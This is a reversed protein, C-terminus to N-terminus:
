GKLVELWNKGDVLHKEELRLIKFRDKYEALGLDGFFKDEDKTTQKKYDFYFIELNHNEKLLCKFMGNLLNDDKNFGFGLVAVKSCEALSKYADAYLKVVDFYMIPKMAVQPYLFPVLNKSSENKLELDSLECVSKSDLDFFSDIKGNLHFVKAEGQDQDLKKAFKKDYFTSYNTTCVSGLTIESDAIIEDYYSKEGSQNEIENQKQLITQRMVLLLSVIKRFQTKNKEPYFLADFNEFLKQYDICKEILKNTFDKLKSFIKEDDSQKKTEQTKNKQNKTERNESIVEFLKASLAPANNKNLMFAGDNDNFFDNFKKAFFKQNLKELISNGYLFFLLSINFKILISLKNCFSSKEKNSKSENKLKQLENKVKTNVDIAKSLLKFEPLKEEAFKEVFDDFIKKVDENKHNEDFDKDSELFLNKIEDKRNEIMSECVKQVDASSLKTFAGYKKYGLNKYDEKAKNMVDGSPNMISIAFEAGNQFGYKVETGAGFFFGIKNEAM